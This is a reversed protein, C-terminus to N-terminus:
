SSYEDLNSEIIVKIENDKQETEAQKELNRIRAEQERIDAASKVGKIEKINKIATSLDKIGNPTEVVDILETIKNLLKDAADIIKDAKAAKKKSVSNVIKTNAKHQAQSKLKVWEEKEAVNRLAALTVGQDKYKEALKRYSTGGAIYEAKIKEWVM